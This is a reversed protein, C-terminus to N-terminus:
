DLYKIVKEVVGNLSMSAKVTYDKVGFEEARKIDEGQGLNSVILVPVNKWKENSKMASLVEFGNRGPLMLDLLIVDPPDKSLFSAAQDGDTAVWVEAGRKAIELQYLRVLFADDEIVFIVKKPNGQNKEETTM